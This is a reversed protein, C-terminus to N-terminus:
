PDNNLLYGTVTDKITRRPGGDNIALVAKKLFMAELPVIGFHEKLPTYLLM